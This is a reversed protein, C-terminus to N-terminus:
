MESLKKLPKKELNSWKETPEGGGEIGKKTQKKNSLYNISEETFEGSNKDFAANDQGILYWDNDQFRFKYGDSWVHSSGGSFNINLVGKKIFFSEFPDGMVGGEDAKLIFENHQISRQYVGDKQFVIVLVRPYGVGFDDEKKDKQYEMVFAMDDLKDKNLDGTDSRIIAWDKPVFDALIKGKQIVKPYVFDEQAWVLSCYLLILLVSFIKKM